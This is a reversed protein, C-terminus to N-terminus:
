RLGDCQLPQELERRRIRRRRGLSPEMGGRRCIQCDGYKATGNDQLGVFMVAPETPHQAFHSTCLSALGTNMPTWTGGGSPNTNLFLGGDCGVWLANSDGPTFVLAHEDAHATEGISTATMSLSAGASNVVCSWISGVWQNASSDWLTDGGLYIANANNPDVAIALDYDGQGNPCLTPIGSISQWAGGAGDLRQVSNLPGGGSLAAYLVNPNDPQVGLAIRTIGTPFGSGIASWNTGDTSSYVQDGWAAAFWQTVGGTSTVVVSSHSGTRRQQWQYNSGGASVREYLGNSTAAVCHDRDAPDVAIQYFSYGALSPNSPESNWTQGGDDSRIPGVGRYCPLYSVLRFSFISDTDGEGTGVYIRDPDAPDIAIAGCALCTAAFSTTNLDFGDMTSYWSVGSNDSRWVGGCATAVYM